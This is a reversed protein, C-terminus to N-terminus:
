IFRDVSMNYTFDKRRDHEKGGNRRRETAIRGYSKYLVVRGVDVATGNDLLRKVYSYVVVSRWELSRFSLNPVDCFKANETGKELSWHSYTM